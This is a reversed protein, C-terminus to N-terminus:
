KVILKKLQKKADSIAGAKTIFGIKTKGQYKTVWEGHQKFVDIVVAAKRENLFWVMTVDGDNSIKIQNVKM